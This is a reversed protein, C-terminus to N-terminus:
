ALFFCSGSAGGEPHPPHFNVYYSPYLEPTFSRITIVPEFDVSELSLYMNEFDVSPCTSPLDHFCSISNKQIEKSFEALSSLSLNLASTSAVSPIFPPVVYNDCHSSSNNSSFSGSNITTPSFEFSAKLNCDETITSLSPAAKIFVAFPINSDTNSTTNNDTNNSSANNSSIKYSPSFPRPLPSASTSSPFPYYPSPVAPGCSSRSLSFLNDNSSGELTLPQLDEGKKGDGKADV